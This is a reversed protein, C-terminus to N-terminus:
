TTATSPSRRSASRRPARRDVGAGATVSDTRTFAAFGNDECVFLVPLEFLAAWNLGELFPGRNVAGDGFICAVIADAGAAEAGHAAGVAIPIGAAVVGNAGLM